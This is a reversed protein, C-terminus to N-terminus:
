VLKYKQYLSSIETALSARLDDPVLVEAAAGWSLLWPQLERLAQVRYTMVVREELQDPEEGTFSYHQRERVWRVVGPEFRVRVDV